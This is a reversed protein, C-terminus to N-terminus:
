EDDRSGAETQASVPRLWVSRGEPPQGRGWGSQSMFRSAHPLVGRRLPPTAPLAALVDHWFAAHAQDGTVAAEAIHRVTAGCREMAALRAVERPRIASAGLLQAACRVLQPDYDQAASIMAVALEADSVRPRGPDSVVEDGAPAYHRCGRRVALRLLAAPTALGLRRLKRLLPSLHATGGLSEAMTKM